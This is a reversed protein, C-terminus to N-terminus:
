ITVLSDSRDFPASREAPALNSLLNIPSILVSISALSNVGESKPIIAAILM